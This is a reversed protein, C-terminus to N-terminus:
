HGSCGIAAARSWGENDGSQSPPARQAQWRPESKNGMPLRRPRTRDTEVVAVARGSLNHEEVRVAVLIDGTM